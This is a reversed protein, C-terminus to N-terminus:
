FHLILTQIITIMFYLDFSFLTFINYCHLPVFGMIRRLICKVAENGSFELGLPAFTGFDSEMVFQMNGNEAAHNQIYQKAGVLGLEEATWM